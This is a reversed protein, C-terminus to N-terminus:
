TIMAAAMISSVIPQIMMDTVKPSASCPPISRAESAWLRRPVAIKRTRLKVM